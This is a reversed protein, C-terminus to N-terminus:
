FSCFFEITIVNFTLNWFGLALDIGFILHGFSLFTQEETLQEKLWEQLLCTLPIHRTM